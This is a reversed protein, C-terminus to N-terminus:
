GEGFDYAPPGGRAPQGHSSTSINTFVRWIHFGDGGDTVRPHTMVHHCCSILVYIFNIRAKYVCSFIGIIGECFGGCLKMTFFFFPSELIHYMFM